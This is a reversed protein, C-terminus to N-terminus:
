LVDHCRALPQDGDLLVGAQFFRAAQHVLMADLAHQHHVIRELQATQHRDLVDQFGAFMRNGALVAEAMQADARRDAHALARILADRQQGLGAHIHDHHIGRVAM